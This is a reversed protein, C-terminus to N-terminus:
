KAISFQVLILAPYCAVIDAILINMLSELPEYKKLHVKVGIWLPHKQMKWKAWGCMPKVDELSTIKCKEPQQVTRHDILLNQMHM